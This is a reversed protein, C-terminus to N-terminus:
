VCTKKFFFFLILTIIDKQGQKALPHNVEANTLDTDVFGDMKM